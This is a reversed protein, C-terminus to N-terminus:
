PPMEEVSAGKERDLWCVFDVLVSEIINYSIFIKKQDMRHAQKM